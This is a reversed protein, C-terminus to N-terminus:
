RTFGNLNVVRDEGDETRVSIKTLPNNLKATVRAMKKDKKLLVRDGVKVQTNDFPSKVGPNGFLSKFGSRAMGPINLAEHIEEKIIQRLESKKM